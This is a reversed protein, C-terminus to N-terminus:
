TVEIYVYYLTNSSGTSANQPVLMQFDYGVEDYGALANELLTAYVLSTEDNSKGPKLSSISFGM